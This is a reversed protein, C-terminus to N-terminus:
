LARHFAGGGFADKYYTNVMIDYSHCGELTARGSDRHADDADELAASVGRRGLAASYSDRLRPKLTKTALSEKLIHTPISDFYNPLNRPPKEKKMMRVCIPFVSRLASGFYRFVVVRVLAVAAIAVLLGFMVESPMTIARAVIRGGHQLEANLSGLASFQTTMKDFIQTNSYMWIGFLTHLLVAWPLLSGAAGAIKGDYQPPSRVVRLFAISIDNRSALDFEPGRYLAELDRQTEQHTITMDFSFGRDSFRQFEVVVYTIFVGAHPSVMNILMTLMLSIGVDNYWSVSFDSYKGSFIKVGNVSAGAGSKDMVDDMNANLLLVILATNFFQAIFIKTVTAVVVGSRTHSKQKLVLYRLVPTLCSNIVVVIVVSAVMLAQIELYQTGWTDCYKVSTGTRHDVFDINMADKLSSQLLAAKCFCMVMTQDGSSSTQEQVVDWATVGGDPCAVPAGYKQTLENKKVKAAYIIIFSLCLLSLAMLNVVIVRVLRNAATFDLNEWIIDTPDPAPQIWMRKKLFRKHYPQFLRHLVGLSPYERMCRLYGEEEEFTIYATVAVLGKGKNKKEWEDLRKDYSTFQDGLANSAKLLREMRREFTKVDMEHANPPQHPQLKKFKAIRQLAVDLKAAVEGRKRMLSIQAANTLGFNIDAVRIAQIAENYVPAKASLVTELHTKLDEALKPVDKHHPLHMLQVTYNDVSLRESLIQSNAIKEQQKMWIVVMIFVVSYVIDLGCAMGVFDQRTVSNWGMIKFAWSTSVDIKTTLCKAQAIIGRESRTANPCTATNMRDTLRAQCFLPSSPDTCVTKYTDDVKWLYLEADDVTLSCTQQGLCLGNLIPTVVPSACGEADKLMLEPFTGAGSVTDKTYGCCTDGASPFDGLFCPLGSTPCAADDLPGRCVGKSSAQYATPCSCTGQADHLSYSADVHGIEGYPCTLTLTEGYKAQACVSESEGLHGMSTMGLIALPNKQLQLKIADGNGSGCIVYIVMSPLSIIFMILFLWSMVKLFKFYLSVGIGYKSLVHSDTPLTHFSHAGFDTGVVPYTKPVPHGMRDKETLSYCMPHTLGRDRRCKAYSLYKLHKTGCDPTYGALQPDHGPSTCDNMCAELDNPITIALDPSPTNRNNTATDDAHDPVAATPVVVVDVVGEELVVDKPDNAGADNARPAIDDSAIIAADTAEPLQVVPESSPPVEAPESTSTPAEVVPESTPPPAPEESM